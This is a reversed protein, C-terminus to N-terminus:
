DASSVVQPIGTEYVKSEGRGILGPSQPAGRQTEQGPGEKCQGRKKIEEYYYDANRLVGTMEDTM